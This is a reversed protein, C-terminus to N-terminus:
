NKKWLRDDGCNNNTFGSLFEQIIETPRTYPLCVAQSVGGQIIVKERAEMCEKMTPMETEYPAGGVLTVVLLATKIM